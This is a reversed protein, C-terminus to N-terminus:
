KIIQWWTLRILCAPLPTKPEISRGPTSSEGETAAEARSILKSETRHPEAHMILFGPSTCYLSLELLRSLRKLLASRARMLSGTRAAWLYRLPAPPPPQTHLDTPSAGVCAQKYTCTGLLSVFGQILVLGTVTQTRICKEREEKRGTASTTHHTAAAPRLPAAQQTVGGGWGWCM